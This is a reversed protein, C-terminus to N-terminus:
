PTYTWTVQDDSAGPAAAAISNAGPRLAVDWTAVHDNVPKAGLVTGNLTFTVSPQNSYVKVTVRDTHRNMDRRSTVYVMPKTTWNAQYWFYADKKVKRDFTILGKDNIGPADGENRGASPFDFGAWVFTGWLWPMDRLQRWAAEHYLSEYQEPHWHSSAVPRRPPDEEQVISGGAGYESIAMPRGSMLPRSDAAWKTLGGFEGDYWGFYVNSGLVDSHSAHPQNVPGCCNAYTTPRSPDEEHAVKQLTDLVHNSAANSKYIENGIGWVIVSPHNANQRILERLQQTLNALFADSANTESVAPVETWVLFGKQDSLDYDRQPHQYHALRLGTVGMDSLMEFDQDVAADDVASGKGPRMSQHIDVGHVSYAQGNLVLGKDPDLRIDRIGTAIDLQDLLKPTAGDAVISVDSTYLYPDPVGQWLHPADVVASLTVPSTSHAALDATQVVMRTVRHEADELRVVVQVKKAADSDNTVRASWSLDASRASVNTSRVQVGSSGFDLMDFHVDQTTVLRVPRYLGGFVTFDGGLPAVGNMKSNDVRVALVNLGARLNSTVDFRFRAFGGEHRGIHVGNLWIDAALAAGDFELFVRESPKVQEVTLLCRYWGAGRYYAGGREGDRANWTHPLAVGEWGKDDFAVQEAGTPDSRLFHWGQDLDREIRAQGIAPAACLGFYVFVFLAVARLPLAFRDYCRMLM